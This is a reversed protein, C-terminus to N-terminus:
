FFRAEGMGYKINVSKDVPKTRNLKCKTDVGGTLCNATSETPPRLPIQRCLDGADAVASSVQPELLEYISPTECSLTKDGDLKRMSILSCNAEEHKSERNLSQTTKTCDISSSPTGDHFYKASTVCPGNVSAVNQLKESTVPTAKDSDESSQYIDVNM